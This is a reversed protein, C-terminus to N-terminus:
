EKILSARPGAQGRGLLLLGDQLEQLLDRKYVPSNRMIEHGEGRGAGGWVYLIRYVTHYIYTQDWIILGGWGSKDGGEGIQGVRAVAISYSRVEWDAGRSVRRAGWEGIQGVREV